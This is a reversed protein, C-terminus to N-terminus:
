GVRKAYFWSMRVFNPVIVVDTTANNSLSPVYRVDAIEPVSIMKNLGSYIAAIGVKFAKNILHIPKKKLAMLEEILDSVTADAVGLLTKFLPRVREADYFSTIM